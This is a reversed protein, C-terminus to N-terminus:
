NSWLVYGRQRRKFQKETRDSWVFQWRSWKGGWQCVIGTASTLPPGAGSQSGAASSCAPSSACAPGSPPLAPSASRSSCPQTCGCSSVSPRAPSSVCTPPAWPPPPPSPGPHWFSGERQNHTGVNWDAPSVGRRPQPQSGEVAPRWRCPSPSASRQSSHLPADGKRICKKKKINCLWWVNMWGDM